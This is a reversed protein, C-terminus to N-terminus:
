IAQKEYAYLQLKEVASLSVGQGHFDLASLVIDQQIM